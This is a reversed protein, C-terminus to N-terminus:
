DVFGAEVSDLERPDVGQLSAGGSAAEEDAETSALLVTKKKLLQGLITERMRGNSSVILGNSARGLETNGALLGRWDLGRLLGCRLRNTPSLLGCALGM